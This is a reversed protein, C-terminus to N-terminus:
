CQDAKPVALESIVTASSTARLRRYYGVDWSWEILGAKWGRQRIRYRLRAVLDVFCHGLQFHDMPRGMIKECLVFAEAIGGLLKVLNKPRLRSSKILHTLKLSPQYSCSYGLLYSTRALLADEGGISTKKARQPGLLQAYPNREVIEVFKLGISRRFVMGAGIPEWHGWRNENSTIVETGYDRVGLYPLFVKKWDSVFGEGLFRTVGGFAGLIPHENAIQLAHTLYDPDFYNDDDLFAILESQATLIGTCRAFTVGPKPECVIRLNLPRGSRVVEFDLAPASGNDVVIVEFESKPLTQNMLSDLAWGIVAFQPNHTAIVVSIAPV